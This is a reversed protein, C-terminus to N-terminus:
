VVSKRDQVGFVNERGAISVFGGCYSTLAIVDEAREPVLHYSHVFYFDAGNRINRLLASSGDHVVENWGVHPVREGKISPTLAKVEGAILDLGSTRSIENGVTAILQMGLCVGLIPIKRILAAERLSDLLNHAQLRAIAQPFAGVGPLVIRDAKAVVTWDGTVTIAADCLSLARAMSDLNCIGTDVITVAAKPRRVIQKGSIAGRRERNRIVSKTM